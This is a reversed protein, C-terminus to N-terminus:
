VCRAYLMNVKNYLGNLNNVIYYDYYSFVLVKHLTANTGFNQKFLGLAHNPNIEHLIINKDNKWSKSDSLLLRPM